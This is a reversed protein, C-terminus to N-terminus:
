KEGEIRKVAEAAVGAVLEDERLARLAPAADSAAAGLKGLAGAAAARVTWIEDKLTDKLAAIIKADAVGIEGLAKAAEVRVWAHEDRLREAVNPATPAADKGLAGLQKAVWARTHFSQARLEDKLLATLAPLARPHREIKWLATAVYGKTAPKETKDLVRELAAVADRALPGFKTLANLIGFNVDNPDGLAAILVPMAELGDAGIEALALAAPTRANYRDKRIVDILTPVATPHKEIKWLALAAAVRQEGDREKALYRVLAPTAEKAAPGIKGLVECCYHSDYGREGMWKVVDPVAKAAAPGFSGLAYIVYRQVDPDGAAYAEVLDPLAAAADPGINSLTHAAGERVRVNEDRLAKTLAPVAEKAKPGVRWLGAAAGSRIGPHPSELGKILLPLAQASLADMWWGAYCATFFHEESELLPLLAKGAAAYGTSMWGISRVAADRVNREPDKLLKFLDHFAPRGEDRFYGIAEAADRRVYAHPDGLAAVLAPLVGKGSEGIHGLAEAAQRRVEWDDDKLAKLLRPLAARAEWGLRGCAYIAEKRVQPDDVLPVVEAALAYILSHQIANLASKRVERDPSALDSRLKDIRDVFGDKTKGKQAQAFPPSLFTIFAVCIATQRM